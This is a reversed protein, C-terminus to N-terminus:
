QPLERTWRHGCYSCEMTVIDGGPWGDRQGGVERAGHHVVPTGKDPTWPAEATCQYAETM